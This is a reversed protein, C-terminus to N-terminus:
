QKMSSPLAEGAAFWADFERKFAAAAEPSEIVNLDDTRLLQEDVLYSNQHAVTTGDRKMRIKVGAKEALDNFSEAPKSDALGAGDLYIRVKVGRDSARILAQIITWDRLELAAVDIEHGAHDILAVDSYELKAGAVDHIVPAPDSECPAISVLSAGIALTLRVMKM